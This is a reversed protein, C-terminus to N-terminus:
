KMTKLKVEIHDTHHAVSADRGTLLRVGPRPALTRKKTKTPPHQGDFERLALAPRDSARRRPGAGAVEGEPGVEVPHHGTVAEGHAEVEAILLVRDAAVAVTPHAADPPPHAGAPVVTVITMAAAPPGTADTAARPPVPAAAPIADAMVVAVHVCTTGTRAGM